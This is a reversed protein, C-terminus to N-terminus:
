AQELFLEGKREIDMSYSYTVYKLADVKVSYEINKVFPVIPFALSWQVTKLKVFKRERGVM